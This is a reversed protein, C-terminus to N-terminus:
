RDTLWGCCLLTRRLGLSHGQAVWAVIAAVRRSADGETLAGLRVARGLGRMRRLFRARRFGDLRTRQPWVRFGLAPVGISVPALRRASPKETQGMHTSVFGALADAQGKVTAKDAGFVFLDDMYRVWGGVGLRRAERDVAGLLLNALHQSTLNGIPLGIGPANAGRTLVRDLVALLPPDDFRAALMAGLLSLDATEFCHLVDLKAYWPWRRAHEQVRRVAALTGKGTRCAYSDFDAEAEFVPEMAACLAHHVVRDRFPAASIVRPKPDRIPFTHFPGPEYRGERLERQLQLVERELECLFAACGASRSVGRSARLAAARLAWFDTAADFFAGM